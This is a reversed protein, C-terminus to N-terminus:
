QQTNNVQPIQEFTVGELTTSLGADPNMMNPNVKIDQALTPVPAIAVMSLCVALLTKKMFSSRNNYRGATPRHGIFVVPFMVQKVMLLALFSTVSDYIRN